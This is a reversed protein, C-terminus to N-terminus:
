KAEREDIRLSKQKALKSTIPISHKQCFNMMDILTLRGIEDIDIHEMLESYYTENLDTKSM